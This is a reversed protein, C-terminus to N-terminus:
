IIGRLITKTSEQEGHEWLKTQKQNIFPKFPPQQRGSKIEEHYTRQSRGRRKQGTRNGRLYLGNRQYRYIPYLRSIGIKTKNM